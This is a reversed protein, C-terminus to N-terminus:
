VNSRPVHQAALIGRLPDYEAVTDSDLLICRAKRHHRLHPRLREEWSNRDYWISEQLVRIITWGHLIAQQMKWTDREQLPKPDPWRRKKIYHHRGDVEIILKIEPIVIDFPLHRGTKPNRCWEFRKETEYEVTFNDTLWECMKKETKHRCRRCWRKTRVLKKIQIGFTHGYGCDFKCMRDSNIMVEHPMCSNMVSWFKARPHSAFSRSCNADGCVEKARPKCGCM